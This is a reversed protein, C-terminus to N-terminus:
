CNFFSESIKRDGSALKLKLFEPFKRFQENIGKEIKMYKAAFFFFM